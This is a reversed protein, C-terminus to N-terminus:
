PSIAPESDPDELAYKAAQELPLVWGASWAAAFKELGLARRAATVAQAEEPSLFSAAGDARGASDTDAPFSPPSGPVSQLGDAAGLLRAARVWDQRHAAVRGLCRLVWPASQNLGMQVVLRLHEALLPGARDYEQTQLAAVGALALAASLSWSDKLGGFLTICEKLLGQVRAYDGQDIDDRALCWLAHGTKQPNGLARSIALSEEHLARAAAHDGELLAANGLLMAAHAIGSRNELERHMELSRTLATRAAPLDDGTAIDGLNCWLNAESKREGIERAIALGEEFLPRASAADGYISLLGGARSLAKARVATREQAEARKLTLAYYYHGEEFYGRMWWLFFLDSALRLGPQAGEPDELCWDLAARLNDHEAELKDLWLLQGPGQIEPRAREALGLFEDRHRTCVAYEEGADCLRDRAYQGITKLLFYRTGDGAPEAVALSKDVLATLLDLVEWDEVPEGACVAEAAGFTWGGAFVSLRRLLAKEPDTLLDYSWDILARLTQQRPLVTRSGGTLLRFRQNLRSHIETVSLSRVRAAALEIALPIGDLHVCIQAVAPANASTVAFSSQVAQAREIFLSVAEYQSVIEVTQSQKLDPLSLSPVRYIQEGAVNLPERSSALIQVRPCSQLLRAALAACAPLLHECNDLILLLHRARLWEELAQLPPKDREERVGLIQAVTQPVLAPDSLAALEILWTGDPYLDLLDAAVQLSLRSKGTGGTGALTLLRAAPLLAKIEAVERERGIFSTTQQPLNNPLAPNDMSRLPPFAGPLAPHVLQFVTEPRTLDKLRHPGLDHLSASEPLLDRTLEQAALSLLTQGGHGASLLRAARNLAPGFYDGDREEAAGVHLAMRVRLPTEAAWPEAALALQATLAATLASPATAFAACFADGVTKFIFGEQASITERLLFDHRALALRMAAPHDEWLKTSGEIDTFLFTITGTPPYSM